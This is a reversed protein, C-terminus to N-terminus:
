LLLVARWDHYLEESIESFSSDPIGDELSIPPGNVVTGHSSSNFIYASVAAPKLRGTMASDIGSGAPSAVVADRMQQLFFESHTTLAIRLGSNVLRVLFRAFSIQLDPHLHAEPEEIVLLDDQRLRYRLYLVVPALESVMSSTRGLPYDGSVTRYVLNPATDGDGLVYIEGHLIENELQDAEETFDGSVAPDLGILESLFDTIVGSLAPIRLDEIGALSSRRALSGALAKQAHMFGTRDAPLYRTHSPVERFCARALQSLLDRLRLSQSTPRRALRRWVSPSILQWIERLSPEKTVEVSFTGRKITLEVDWSPRSSSITMSAPLARKGAVRRVEGINSVGATRVIEQAVSTMYEPLTESLRAEFFSRVEDSMLRFSDHGGSAVAEDIFSYVDLSLDDAGEDWRVARMARAVRVSGAVGSQSLSSYLITATISKGSNNPGSFIILPTLNIDAARVPGINNIKIRLGHGIADIAM